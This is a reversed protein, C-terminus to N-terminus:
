IQFTLLIILRLLVLLCTPTSLLIPLLNWYLGTKDVFKANPFKQNCLDYISSPINRSVDYFTIYSAPVNAKLVLQRLLGLVMQPSINSSGDMAGHTDCNNLNIKVAIKEGQKYGTEGKQHTTNFYKFIADWAQIDSNEGSIKCITEAIMLDVQSQIINGELFWNGDPNITTAGSKGDIGFKRAVGSWNTANPNYCWVVRGPFIGKANGIPTNPNDTPEFDESYTSKNFSASITSSPITLISFSFVSAALFIFVLFYNAAAFVTKAKKYFYKGSIVGAIWIVFTSALPFVVKQCPYTARSPKPIVRILFWILSIFGLFIAAIKSRIKFIKNLMGSM